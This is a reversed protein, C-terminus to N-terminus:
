KQEKMDKKTLIWCESRHLLMPVALVYFKLLAEERVKNINEEIHWM